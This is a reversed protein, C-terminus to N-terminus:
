RDGTVIVSDILSMNGDPDEGFVNYTGPELSDTGYWGSDNTTTTATDAAKKAVAGIYPNYGSPIFRVEADAAPDGNTEYLYGSVVATNGTEVSGAVNDNCGLFPLVAGAAISLTFLVKLIRYANM